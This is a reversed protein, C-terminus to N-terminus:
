PFVVRQHMVCGPEVVSIVYVKGSRVLAAPLAVTSSNPSFSTKYVLRGDISLVSMQGTRTFGHLRVIGQSSISFASSLGGHIAARVVGASNEIMAITVTTTDASDVTGLTINNTRGVRAYNELTADVSVQRVSSPIGSFSYTGEADTEAVLTIQTGGNQGGGVSYAVSVTVGALLEKSMSDSVTGVLMKSAGTDAMLYLSVSESSSDNLSYRISGPTFGAATASFTYQGTTLDAFSVSGADSATESLISRDVTTVVTAGAIAASDASSKVVIAVTKTVMMALSIDITDTGASKTNLNQTATVYGENSVTIRYGTGSAVDDFSYIGEASSTTSDLADGGRRGLLLVQAGDLPTTGSTVTGTISGMSVKVLAVDAVAAGEVVVNSNGTSFTAASVSVTYTGPQIDPFSYTGDAGTTDTGSTRNGARLQVVAGAVPDGSASDSVVGSVTVGPVPVALKIDQVITTDNDPVEVMVRQSTTYGTKEAQLQRMGEAVSDFSYIGDEGVTDTLTTGGGGGLSALTVVAEGLAAGSTDTVIGQITAAHLSFLSFLLMLCIRVCRKVM